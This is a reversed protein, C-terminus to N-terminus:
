TILSENLTEIKQIEISHIVSYDELIDYVKFNIWEAGGDKVDLLLKSFPIYDRKKFFKKIKSMGGEGSALYIEYGEETIEIGKPQNKNDNAIVYKCFVETAPESTENKNYFWVPVSVGVVEVQKGEYIDYRQERTLFINHSVCLISNM